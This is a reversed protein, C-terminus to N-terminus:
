GGVLPRVEVVEFTVLFKIAESVAHSKERRRIEKILTEDTSEGVMKLILRKGNYGEGREVFLYAAYPNAKLNAHSLRDNMIFAVTQEDIVHPRAYLAVNVKGEGDATALTGVGQATSFYNHLNM